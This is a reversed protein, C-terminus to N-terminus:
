EEKVPTGHVAMGPVGKTNIVAILLLSPVIM